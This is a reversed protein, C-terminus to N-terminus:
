GGSEKRLEELWAQIKRMGVLDHHKESTEFDEDFWGRTGGTMVKKGFPQFSGFDILIPENDEALMVNAPNLDNHAYGLSHLHEV